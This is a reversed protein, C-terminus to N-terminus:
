RPRYGPPPPAFDDSGPFPVPLPPQDVPVGARRLAEETDYWITLARKNGSRVFPVYYIESEVERGYATGISGVGGSLARAALPTEKEQGPLPRLVLEEIAVLGIVGVNEPRGVLSAYSESRDVFRFAAVKEMSRRWGKIVVAGGPDVIYGPNEEAAPRGTIVSLGDVSVVATVRRPGQNWVRIVYEAGLRPVPLYTRGEHTVTRLRQGEVLVELGVRMPGPRPLLIERRQPPAPGDGGQLLGPLLLCATGVLAAWPYLRKNM